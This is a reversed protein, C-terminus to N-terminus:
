ECGVEGEQLVFYQKKIEEKFDDPINEWSLVQVIFPINSEDLADILAYRQRQSVGFVVIDLDSRAHATGKVRSGYAWVVNGPVYRSLIDRVLALHRSALDIREVM